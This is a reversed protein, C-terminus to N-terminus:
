KSKKRGATPPPPPAARSGSRSADLEPELDGFASQLDDDEELEDAELLSADDLVELDDIAELEDDDQLMAAFPDPEGAKAATPALPQRAGASPKSQAQPLAGSRPRNRGLPPKAGSVPLGAAQPMPVTVSDEPRLAVPEHPSDGSATPTAAPATRPPLPAPARVSDTRPPLPAPARVSDTRPPLPAPARVSDTRPPLPAPARVSDTRPPLPGPARPNARSSVGRSTAVSSPASGSDGPSRPLKSPLPSPGGLAGLTAARRGSRAADPEQADQAALEAAAAQEAELEELLGAFPDDELAASEVAPLEAAGSVESAPGWAEGSIAAAATSSSAAPREEAEDDFDIDIEVEDRAAAAAWISSLEPYRTWYPASYSGVVGTGPVRVRLLGARIGVGLVHGEYYTDIAEKFRWFLAQPKEARGLIAKWLRLPGHEIVPAFLFERGSRFLLEFREHEVVYDHPGLGAQKLEAVLQSPTPRRRRLKQLTAVERELGEDRLLEEFLDEVAVWSGSLPLTALVHGGAKTVRLLERLAARWDVVQEGLM